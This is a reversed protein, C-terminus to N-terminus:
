NYFSNEQMEDDLTKQTIESWQSLQEKRRQVIRAAVSCILNRHLLM